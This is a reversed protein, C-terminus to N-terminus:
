HIGSIRNLSEELVKQEESSWDITFSSQSNSSNLASRLNQQRTKDHLGGPGMKEGRVIKSTNGRATYDTAARNGGGQKSKSGGVPQYKMGNSNNMSNFQKSDNRSNSEKKTVTQLGLLIM